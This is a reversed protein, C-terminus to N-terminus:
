EAMDALADRLPTLHGAYNRWRGVSSAYLPQRVQSYSTTHVYRPNEHFRLCRDDWPLGAFDLLRRTQGEPDAVVAEYSVDLIAPGDPLSRWHDMLRRYDRYFRGLHNLDYAYDHTDGFHTAFCSLCTDLPSRVCHVIRAKPLM